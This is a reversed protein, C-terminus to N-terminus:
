VPLTITFTAGRGEGSEVKIAGGHARVINHVLALGVGAGHEKTTFFPHFIRERINVPIGSGTDHVIMQTVPLGGGNETRRTALTLEGGGTMAQTANIMLNLMVQRWLEPDVHVFTAEPDINTTVRIDYQLLQTDIETIAIELLERLDVMQVMPDAGKAFSLLNSIILNLSKIGQQVKGALEGSQTDAGLDRQLLSAFLEISGMPNRIQHVIQVALEGMATLRQNRQATDRRAVLDTIDEALLIRGEGQGVARVRHTSCRLVRATPDDLSGVETEAVLGGAEALASLGSVGAFQVAFLEALGLGKATQENVGFLEQGARNVRALKGDGDFVLVAMDLSALVDSLQTRAHETAELQAALERNKEEVELNLEEVKAQLEAYAKEMLKSTAMFGEFAEQLLKPDVEHAPTPSQKETM